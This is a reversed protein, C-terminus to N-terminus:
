LEEETGQPEEPADASEPPEEPIPVTKFPDAAVGGLLAPATKYAHILRVSNWLKLNINELAVEQKLVIVAKAQIITQYFDRYLFALVSALMVAIVTIVGLRVAHLKDLEDPASAATKKKQLFPLNM